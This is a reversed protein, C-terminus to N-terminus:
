RTLIAKASITTTATTLCVLYVGAPLRTGGAGRGDWELDNFGAPLWGPEQSRVWRGAADYVQMRAAGASPLSFSLHVSSSAPSPWVLGRGVPPTMREGIQSGGADAATSVELQGVIASEGRRDIASLRYIYRTGPVIEVDDFEYHSASRILGDGLRMFETGAACDRRELVFGAHDREFATNWRLAVGGAHPTAVFGSVEVASTTGGSLLVSVNDSGWNGVAIDDVGNGDFDAVALSHPEVGANFRQQATFGGGGNGLYLSIDNDRTNATIIDLQHDGDFDGVAIAWPSEGASRDQRSGFHGDGTGFLTTQSGGGFNSTALDRQSDRDFDGYAVQTPANGVAPVSVQSFGGNGDGRLVTVNHSGRNAVALDIRGDRNLDVAIISEPGTGVAVTGNSSMAGTGDGLFIRVFNGSYSSVAVDDHGDRDFDGVAVAHARDGSAFRRVTAFGGNGNGLLIGLDDSVKNGVALDQHGDENFDGIALGWPGRGSYHDGARSFEGNGNGLLITVSQGQYNAVALDAKGDEDFDGSLVARPTDGVPTNHPPGLVAATSLAPILLLIGTWWALRVRVNQRRCQRGQQQWDQGQGGTM